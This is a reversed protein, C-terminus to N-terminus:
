CGNEYRKDHFIVQFTNCSLHFVNATKTKTWERLFLLLTNGEVIMYMNNASPRNEKDTTGNSKSKFLMLLEVKKQLQIPYSCVIHTQIVFDNTSAADKHRCEIYKFFTGEPSLIISTSDNFYVGLIGTNLEFGLGSEYQLYNSVYVRKKSPQSCNGDGKKPSPILDIDNQSSTTLSERDVLDWEQIENIVSNIEDTCQKTNLGSNHDISEGESKFHHNQIHEQFRELVEPDDINQPVNSTSHALSWVFNM